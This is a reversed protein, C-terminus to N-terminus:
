NAVAQEPTHSPTEQPKGRNLSQNVPGQSTTASTTSLDPSGPGQIHTLEQASKATFEGYDRTRLVNKGAMSARGLHFGSTMPRQAVEPATSRSGTERCRLLSKGHQRWPRAVTDQHVSTPFGGNGPNKRVPLPVPLAVLSTGSSLLVSNYDQLSGKRGM